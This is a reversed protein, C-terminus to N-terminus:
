HQLYDLAMILWILKEQGTTVITIDMGLIKKVKDIDIEFLFYKKRSYKFYVSKISFSNGANKANIEMHMKLSYEIRFRNKEAGTM